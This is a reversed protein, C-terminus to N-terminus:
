DANKIAEKLCQTLVNRDEKMIKPNNLKCEYIPRAIQPGAYRTLIFRYKFFYETYYLIFQEQLNNPEVLYVDGLNAENDLIKQLIVKMMKDGFPRFGQYM